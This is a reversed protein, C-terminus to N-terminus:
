PVKISESDFKGFHHDPTYYRVEYHYTKQKEIDTDFFIEDEILSTIPVFPGDDEAKFLIFGKINDLKKDNWAIRIRNESSQYDVRVTNKVPQHATTKDDAQTHLVVPEAYDSRHGADDLAIVTYAMEKGDHISPGSWHTVDSPLVKQSILVWDEESQVHRRFVQYGVVDHHHSPLWDLIVSDREEHIKTIYPTEPKIVDYTRILDSRTFVSANHAKDFAAVAVQFTTAISDEFVYEFSTNDLIGHHLPAFQSDDLNEQRALFVKYGWIEDDEIPDWTMIIRDGDRKAIFNSPSKPPIKDEVTIQDQVFGSSNEDQDISRLRYYYAGHKLKVDEFEAASAPLIAIREFKSHPRTSRWVEYASVDVSASKKWELLPRQEIVEISELIPPEPPHKSGVRVELPQSPNGEDGFADIALLTYNYEQGKEVTTDLFFVDRYRYIDNEDMYKFVLIPLNNLKMQDNEGKTQRYINVGFYEEPEPKWRFAVEDLNHYVVKPDQVVSEASSGPTIPDSISFIEPNSAAEVKYTYTKNAEVSRDDFRIGLYRAFDDNFVATKILYTGHIGQPRSFDEPIMGLAIEVNSDAALQTSLAQHGHTIPATNLQEWRNEPNTKRYINWGGEILLDDYIWKIKLANKTEIQTSKIFIDLSQDGAQCRAYKISTSLFIIILFSKYLDKKDHM